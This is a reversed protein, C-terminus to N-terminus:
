FNGMQKGLGTIEPGPYVGKGQVSAGGDKGDPIHATDSDM